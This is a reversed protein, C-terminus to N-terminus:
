KSFYKGVYNMTVFLQTTLFGHFGFYYYKWRTNGLTYYEHSKYYCYGIGYLNPLGFTVNMNEPVYLLTTGLFYVFSIKSIYQHLQQRWDDVTNYWYNASILSTAFLLLPNYIQQYHIHSYIGPLTFLFSSATLLKSNWNTIRNM